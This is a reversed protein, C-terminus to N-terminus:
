DSLHGYSIEVGHKAAQQAAFNLAEEHGIFEEDDVGYEGDDDECFTLVVWSRRIVVRPLDDADTDTETHPETM